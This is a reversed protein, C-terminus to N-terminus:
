DGAATSRRRAAGRYKYVFYATQQLWRLRELHSLALLRKPTDRFASAPLQRIRTETDDTM